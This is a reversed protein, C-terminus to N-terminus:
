GKMVSRQRLGEFLVVAAATAVNLSESQGEMPIFIRQAAGSLIEESLGNGENGFAVATPSTFDVSFYPKATADLAAAQLSIGKQSLFALLDASSVDSIVPLHFLSGMAARVTKGAYVDASNKTLIIASCGSADATRIITGVNGPDQLQDLVIIHPTEEIKELDKLDAAKKHLVLMVGQPEKTDSVKDYLDKTVQCVPCGMQELREILVRGREAGMVDPTYLCYAAPWGADAAAEVLRIGEALFLGEQDRHKKQKLSAALKIKKNAASVIVEM